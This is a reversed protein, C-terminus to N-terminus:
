GVGNRALALRNLVLGDADDASERQNLRRFFIPLGDGASLCELRLEVSDPQANLRVSM